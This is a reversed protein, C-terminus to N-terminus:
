PASGFGLNQLLFPPSAVRKSSSMHPISGAVAPDSDSVVWCLRPLFSSLFLVMPFSPASKRKSAPMRDTNLPENLRCYAEPIQINRSPPLSNQTRSVSGLAKHKSPLCKVESNYGLGSILIKLLHKQSPGSFCMKHMESSTHYHLTRSNSWEPKFGAEM